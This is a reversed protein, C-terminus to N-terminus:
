FGHSRVSRATWCSRPLRGCLRELFIPFDSHFAYANKRISLSRTSSRGIKLIASKAWDPALGIVLFHHPRETPHQPATFVGLSLGHDIVAATNECSV